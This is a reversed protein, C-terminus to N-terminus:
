KMAGAQMFGFLGGFACIILGIFLLTRGGIESGFVNFTVQGLDPLEIDAEAAFGLVPMALLAALWFFVPLSMGFRRAAVMEAVGQRRAHSPFRDRGDKTILGKRGHFRERLKAMTQLSPSPTLP